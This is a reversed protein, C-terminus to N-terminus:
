INFNVGIKKVADIAKICDTKTAFGEGKLKTKIKTKLNYGYNGDDDVFIEFRSFTAKDSDEGADCIVSDKYNIISKLGKLLGLRTQYCDSQGMVKGKETIEYKLGEDSSVIEITGSQSSYIIECNKDVAKEANDTNCSCENDVTGSCDNNQQEINKAANEEKPTNKIHAKEQVINNEEKYGSHIINDSGTDDFNESQPKIKIRYFFYGSAAIILLAAAIVCVWIVVTNSLM